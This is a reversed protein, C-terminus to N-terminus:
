PMAPAQKLTDRHVRWQPMFTDMYRYFNDNHYREHLHVLEHVLVYELCEEPKRALELNLWIRRRQINCSGWRTKMRKVGWGAVTKGIVPQWKELLAPIRAKLLARYWEYLARQRNAPTTGPNVYLSLTANDELLVQHRGRREVVQLLHPRGFVDHTEGSVVSLRSQGPQRLFASQRKRIWKLRATVARRVADDSVHLPASVRVQGDPPYVALYLHKIDKRVVQVQIDSVRIM